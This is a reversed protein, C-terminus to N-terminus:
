PVDGMGPYSVPAIPCRPDGSAAGAPPFTEAALEAMVGGHHLLIMDRRLRGNATVEDNFTTLPAGAESDVGPTLIRWGRLRAYDPLRRGLCALAQTLRAEEGALEDKLTLLALPGPLGDGFVVARSVGPLVSLESELWEPSLNRGSDLILVDRSRGEIRWGGNVHFSGLDGSPWAKATDEEDAGLYGLMRRGHIHIEGEDDRELALGALPRGVAGNQEEEPRTLCVVSGLESLGYGQAVPLGCNVADALLAKSVHGGGVAVLVLSQRWASCCQPLDPGMKSTIAVLARLLGPVLILSQPRRWQLWAKWCLADLDGSGRMGVRDGGDIVAERGQWLALLVGALNELLIALPLVVGHRGLAIGALREDLGDLVSELHDLSLCVGKPAGTTGSTFTVLATGVPLAAVDGDRRWLRLTDEVGLEHFRQAHDAGLYDGLERSGDGIVGDLRTTDLLHALQQASFFTPVPTVAIGARWAGLQAIIWRPCNSGLLGLHAVGSRSLRGAQAEIAQWLQAASWEQEDCFLGRGLLLRRAPAERALDELRRLLRSGHTM